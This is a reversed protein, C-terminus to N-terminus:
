EVADRKASVRTLTGKWSGTDDMQPLTYTGSLSEGSASGSFTAVVVENQVLGFTVMAEDLSGQMPARSLVTAGDVTMTGGIANSTASKFFTAKWSGNATASKDSQWTGSGEYELPADAAGAHARILWVAAALGAVVLFKAGIRKGNM